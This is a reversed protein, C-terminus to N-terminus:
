RRLGLSTIIDYPNVMGTGMKARVQLRELGTLKRGLIAAVEQMPRIM